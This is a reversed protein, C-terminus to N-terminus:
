WYLGIHPVWYEATRFMAVLLAGGVGAYILGTTVRWFLYHEVRSAVWNEVFIAAGGFALVVNYALFHFELGEPSKPFLRMTFAAFLLYGLIYGALTWIVGRGIRRSLPPQMRAAADYIRQSVQQARVSDKYTGM